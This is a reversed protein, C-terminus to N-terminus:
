VLWMLVFSLLIGLICVDMLKVVWMVVMLVMFMVVLLSYLIILFVLYWVVGCVLVVMRFLCVFFGLLVWVWLSSCCSSIVVINNMGSVLRDVNNVIMGLM